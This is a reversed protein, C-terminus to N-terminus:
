KSASTLGFQRWEKDTVFLVLHLLMLTHFLPTIRLTLAMGLHLLICVVAASKRTRAFWIGIGVFLEASLVGYSGIRCLWVPADMWASLLFQGTHESHLARWLSKGNLWGGGDILKAPITLVYVSSWQLALLRKATNPGLRLGGEKLRIGEYPALLLLGWVILSLDTYAGARGQLIALIAIPVLLLVHFLRPRRSFAFGLLLVLVAIILAQALWLPPLPAGIWYVVKMSPRLIPRCFLEWAHPLRVGWYWISWLAFGVRFVVLSTCSAEAFFFRVFRGQSPKPNGASASM